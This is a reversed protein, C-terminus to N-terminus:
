RVVQKLRATVLALIRTLSRSLTVERTVFRYAEETIRQREQDHALYFDIIGPMEDISASIFHKGSIFPASNYMPESIVLTRNAMGLILRHDAMEGRTRSINLMIKTRNLLGNRTEGWCSPDTWSGTALLDVGARRLRHILRRRRGVNLDGVFIVDRDRPLGLDRGFSEDYGLPVWQAQIGREALFERRGATTVMLLDLHDARVLRRLRFYNSYVDTAGSRGLFVRAIERWHPIPWPLKAARPPPFPEGHWLLVLPRERKPIAALQRRILPFWNPNGQIWLIGDANTKLPGDGAQTVECGMRRLASVVAHPTGRHYPLERFCFTIPRM